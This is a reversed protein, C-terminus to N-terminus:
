RVRPKSHKWWADIASKGVHRSQPFAQKVDAAIEVFNLRDIRAHIFAQLEPDTDIKPPREPQHNKRHSTVPKSCNFPGKVPINFAREIAMGLADLIGQGTTFLAKADVIAQRLEDYHTGMPVPAGTKPQGTEAM